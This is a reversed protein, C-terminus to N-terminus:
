DPKASPNFINFQQLEDPPMKILRPYTNNNAKREQILTHCVRKRVKYIPSEDTM